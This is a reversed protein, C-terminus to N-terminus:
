RCPFRAAIAASWANLRLRAASTPPPRRTPGRRGGSGAPPPPPPREVSPPPASPESACAGILFLSAGLALALKLTM